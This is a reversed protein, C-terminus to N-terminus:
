KKNLKKGRPAIVVSQEMYQNIPGDDTRFENQGKSSASKISNQAKLPM